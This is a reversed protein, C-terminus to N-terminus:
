QSGAMKLASLWMSGLPKCCKSQNELVWQVSVVLLFLLSENTEVKKREKYIPMLVYTPKVFVGTESWFM